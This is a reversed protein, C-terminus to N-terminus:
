SYSIDYKKYNDYPLHFMRYILPHIMLVSELLGVMLYTSISINRFIIILTVYIIGMIISVIKYLKRKKANVLPRKYTDAPAYKALCILCIIGIMIKIYSPVVVYKCFMGGGVFFLVSMVLCQLSTKAHIGFATTRLIGYLTMLIIIEKFIGLALGLTTIVILKPITLYIAELGYAIEELKEDSYSPNDREIIALSKELFKKKM